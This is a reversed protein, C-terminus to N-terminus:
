GLVETPVPEEVIGGGGDPDRRVRLARGQPQSTVAGVLETGRFHLGVLDDVAYGDPLTGDLIAQHYLSRRGDQADHHPCFSGELFGLGDVLPQLEPGFSDTTGGQFWCLGGASGGTMVAGSEWAERLAVDVGHLRWVDLMNATNGGAVHIVDHDLVFKHVDPVSIHFLRLHSPVCREASFTEYFSVIYSPDDGAATGLFLVRPREKGTLELTYRHIPDDRRDMLARGGGCAVIHGTM